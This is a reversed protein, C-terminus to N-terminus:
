LIQDLLKAETLFHMLPAIIDDIPNSHAIPEPPAHELALPVATGM